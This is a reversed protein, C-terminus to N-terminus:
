GRTARRLPILADADLDRVGRRSSSAWLEAEAEAETMRGDGERLQGVQEMGAEKGTRIATRTRAM